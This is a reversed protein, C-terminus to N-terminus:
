DEIPFVTSALWVSSWAKSKENTTQAVGCIDKAKETAAELDKAEIVFEKEYVLVYQFKLM